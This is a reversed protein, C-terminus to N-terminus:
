EAESEITFVAAAKLSKRNLLVIPCLFEATPMHPVILVGAEPEGAIEMRLTHAEEDFTGQVVTPQSRVAKVRRFAVKNNIATRIRKDSITTFSTVHENMWHGVYVMQFTLGEGRDGSNSGTSNDASRTRVDCVGIWCYVGVPMRINWRQAGDRLTRDSWELFPTILPDPAQAVIEFSRGDASVIVRERPTGAVDFRHCSRRQYECIIRTLDSLLVGSLAVGIAAEREMLATKKSDPAPVLKATSDAMQESLLVRVPILSPV